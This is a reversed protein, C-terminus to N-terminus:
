LYMKRYKVYLAIPQLVRLFSLKDVIVLIELLYKFHGSHLECLDRVAQLRKQGRRVRDDDVM